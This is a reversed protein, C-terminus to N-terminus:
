TAGGGGMVCLSDYAMTASIRRYSPSYFVYGATGLDVLEFNNWVWCNRYPIWRGFERFLNAVFTPTVTDATRTNM